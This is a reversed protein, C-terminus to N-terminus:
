KGLAIPPDIWEDIIAVGYGAWQKYPYDYIKFQHDTDTFPIWKNGKWYAMRLLSLDSDPIDTKKFYIRLEIAPTFEELSNEPDDEDFLDIKNVKRKFKFRSRENKMEDTVVYSIKMVKVKVGSDQKPVMVMIGQQTSIYKKIENM